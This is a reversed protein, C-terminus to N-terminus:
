MGGLPPMGGGMPAAGGGAQFGLAMIDQLEEAKMFVTEDKVKGEYRVPTQGKKYPYIFSKPSLLKKQMLQFTVQYNGDNSPMVTASCPGVVLYGWEKSYDPVKFVQITGGQLAADFDDDDMGFQQKLQDFHNNNNKSDPNEPSTPAAGMPPAADQEFFSCNFDNSQIFQRFTRTM